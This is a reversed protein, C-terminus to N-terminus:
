RYFSGQGKFFTDFDNEVVGGQASSDHRITIKNGVIAVVLGCHSLGENAWIDHVAVDAHAIDATGSVLDPVRLTCGALCTEGAKSISLQHSVWHACGTGSIPRWDDGGTYTVFCERPAVHRAVDNKASDIGAMCQRCYNKGFRTGSSDRGPHYVCKMTLDHIETNAWTKLAKLPAKSAFTSRLMDPTLPKNFLYYSSLIRWIPWRGALGEYDAYRRSELEAPSSTRLDELARILEMKQSETEFQLDAVSLSKVVHSQTRKSPRQKVKCLTANDVTVRSINKDKM